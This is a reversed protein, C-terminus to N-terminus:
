RCHYNQRRMARNQLFLRLGGLGMIFMRFARTAARVFFTMLAQVHPNPDSVQRSYTGKHGLFALGPKM